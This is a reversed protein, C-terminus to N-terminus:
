CSGAGGTTGDVGAPGARGGARRPHKLARVLARAFSTRRRRVLVLVDGPVLPRGRSELMVDGSTQGRIWEALTDALRQWARLPQNHNAEAVEVRRRSRGFTRCCAGAAVAESPAPMCDARDAHHKLSEGPRVVGAAAVPDDFVADVLRLVPETSRFSM